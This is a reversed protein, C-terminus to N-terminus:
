NRILKIQNLIEDAVEDKSLRPLDIKEGSRKYMSVQNDDRGFVGGDQKLNNAVIMDINKKELKALANAEVNETEAAFGVLIQKDKKAGLAALIDRTRELELRFEGDRKKIKEQACEKPRYDAVAAAKIIVDQASFHKLVAQYMEEASTIKECKVNWPVSLNVAGSVLTVEAGRAAARKAIAYGMKGSSHNTLYRVPDLAERTPGATVLIKLGALDSESLNLMYEALREAEPLRGKGSTGCALHGEDPELVIYGNERLFAINKQVIPNTYMGDNMAPAIVVQAKTAMIFTSLFDDAIGGAIKGIVNATAPAIIVSDAWKALAIHEVEFRKHEAFMEVAVPYGSLTEMTLPTIFECANKTMVVRVEAGAKKLRSVLEAAKYAAIGGSIAVVIRRVM